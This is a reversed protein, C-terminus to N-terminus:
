IGRLQNISLWPDGELGAITVLDNLSNLALIMSNDKAQDLESSRESPESSPNAIWEEWPSLQLM